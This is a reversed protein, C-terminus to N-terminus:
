LEQSTYPPAVQMDDLNVFIIIWDDSPDLVVDFHQRFSQDIRSVVHRHKNGVRRAFRNDLLTIAHLHNLSAPDFLNRRRREANIQHLLRARQIRVYDVEM